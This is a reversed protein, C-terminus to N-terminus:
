SRPQQDDRREAAASRQARWQVFGRALEKGLLFAVVGGAVALVIQLTESSMPLQIHTVPGALALGVPQSFLVLTNRITGETM